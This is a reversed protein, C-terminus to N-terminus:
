STSGRHVMGRLMNTLTYLPSELASWLSGAVTFAVGWLAINNWGMWMRGVLIAFSWRWRSLVRERGTARSRFSVSAANVLMLTLFIPQLWPYYPIGEM